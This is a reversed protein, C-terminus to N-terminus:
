NRYEVYDLISDGLLNLFCRGGNEDHLIELHKKDQDLVRIDSCNKMKMRTIDRDSSDAVFVDVHNDHTSFSLTIKLTDPRITRFSYIGKEEELSSSKLDDFIILLETIDVNM